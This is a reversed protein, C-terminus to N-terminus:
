VGCIKLVWWTYLKYAGMSAAFVLFCVTFALFIIEVVRYKNAAWAILAISGFWVTLILLVEMTAKFAAGLLLILIFEIIGIIFLPFYYEVKEKTEYKVNIQPPKIESVKTLTYFLLVIAGIICGITGITILVSLWGVNNCLFEPNFVKFM